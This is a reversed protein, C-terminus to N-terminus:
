TKPLLLPLHGQLWVLVLTNRRQLRYSDRQHLYGKRRSLSTDIGASHMGLIGRAKILKKDCPCYHLDQGVDPISAAAVRGAGAINMRPGSFTQSREQPGGDCCYRAGLQLLHTFAVVQPGIPSTSETALLGTRELSFELLLLTLGASLAKPPVLM